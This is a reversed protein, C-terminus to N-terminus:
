PRTPFTHSTELWCYNWLSCCGSSLFWKFGERKETHAGPSPSSLLPGARQSPSPPLTPTHHQTKAPQTMVVASSASSQRVVAPGPEVEFSLRLASGGQQNILNMCLFRRSGACRPTARSKRRLRETNKQTAILLAAHSLESLTSHSMNLIITVSPRAALPSPFEGPFVIRTKVLTAKLTRM